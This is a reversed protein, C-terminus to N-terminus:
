EFDEEFDDESRENLAETEAMEAEEAAMMRLEEIIHPDNEDDSDEETSKKSKGSKSKVAKKVAKITTSAKGKKNAPTKSSSPQIETIEPESHESNEPDSVLYGFKAGIRQHLACVNIESNDKNNKKGNCQDGDKKLAQCRAGSEVPEKAKSPKKSKKSNEGGIYESFKDILNEVSREEEPIESLVYRLESIIIKNFNNIFM